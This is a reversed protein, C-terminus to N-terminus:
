PGTCYSSAIITLIAMFKVNIRQANGSSTASTIRDFTEINKARPWTRFYLKANKLIM